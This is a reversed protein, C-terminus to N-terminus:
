SVFPLHNKKRQDRKLFLQLILAKAVHDPKTKCAPTFRIDEYLEITIQLYTVLESQCM